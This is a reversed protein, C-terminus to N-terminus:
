PIVQKIYSYKFIPFIAQRMGRNIGSKFTKIINEVALPDQEEATFYILDSFYYFDTIFLETEPIDVIINVPNEKSSMCCHYELEEEDIDEVVMSFWFNDFGSIKSLIEYAQKKNDRNFNTIAKIDEGNKLRDYVSEPIQLRLLM